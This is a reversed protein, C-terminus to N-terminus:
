SGSGFRLATRMNKALKTAIGNWWISMHRGVVTGYWSEAAADAFTAALVSGGGFICDSLSGFM